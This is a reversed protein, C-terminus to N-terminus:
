YCVTCGLINYYLRNGNVIYLHDCLWRSCLQLQDKGGLFAAFYFDTFRFFRLLTTLLSINIRRVKASMVGLSAQVLMKEVPAPETELPQWKSYSGSRLDRSLPWLPVTTMISSVSSVAMVFSGM